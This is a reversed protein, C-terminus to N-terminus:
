RWAVPNGAEDSLDVDWGLRILERARETAIDYSAVARIALDRFRATLIVHM